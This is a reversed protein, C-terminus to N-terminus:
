PASDRSFTALMANKPAVSITATTASATAPGSGASSTHITGSTIARYM